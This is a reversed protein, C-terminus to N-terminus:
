DMDYCDGSNFKNHRRHLDFKLKYQINSAQIQKTIEIYLDQVRCIFSEVLESIRAHFSMPLVLLSTVM